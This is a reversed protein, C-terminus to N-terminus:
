DRDRRPLSVIDGVWGAESRCWYQAQPKLRERQDISGWRLGWIKADEGEGTTFMPSGCNDCFFQLRARGNDGLKRYVKPEGGTLRLDERAAVVTVRFPSGTLRQCDTCHCISVARADIVADFSINGCHCRGTVQM